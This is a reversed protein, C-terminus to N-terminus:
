NSWNLEVPASGLQDLPDLNGASSPHPILMKLVLWWLEFKLVDVTCDGALTKWQNTTSGGSSNQWITWQGQEKKRPRPPLRKAPCARRSMGTEVGRGWTIRLISVWGTRLDVFCELMENSPPWSRIRRPNWICQQGRAYWQWTPFRPLGSRMLTKRDSVPNTAAVFKAM